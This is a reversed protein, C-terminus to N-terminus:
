SARGGRASFGMSGSLGKAANNASFPFIQGKPLARCFVLAVLVRCTAGQGNAKALATRAM